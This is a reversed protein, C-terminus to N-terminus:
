AARWAFPYRRRLRSAILEAEALSLARLGYAGILLCKTRSLRETLHSHLESNLAARTRLAAARTKQGM